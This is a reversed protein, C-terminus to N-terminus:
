GLAMHGFLPELHPRAMRRNLQRIALGSTLRPITPHSFNPPRQLGSWGESKIRRRTRPAQHM